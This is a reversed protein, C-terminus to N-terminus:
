DTINVQSATKNKHQPHDEISSKEMSSFFDGQHAVSRHIPALLLVKEQLVHAFSTGLVIDVGNDHKEQVGRGALHQMM